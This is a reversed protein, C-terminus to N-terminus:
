SSGSQPSYADQSEDQLTTMAIRLRIKVRLDDMTQAHPVADRPSECERGDEGDFPSAVRSGGRRRGVFPEFLGVIVGSGRDLRDNVRHRCAGRQKGVPISISPGNAERANKKAVYRIMRAIAQGRILV